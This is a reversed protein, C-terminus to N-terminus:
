RRSTQEAIEPFRKSANMRDYIHAPTSLFSSVDSSFVAAASTCTRTENPHSILNHVTSSERYIIITTLKAEETNARAGQTAYIVNNQFAAASTYRAKTIVNRM